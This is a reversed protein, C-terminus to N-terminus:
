PNSVLDTSNTAPSTTGTPASVPAARFQLPPQALVLCGSTSAKRTGRSATSSHHCIMTLTTRTLRTVPAPTSGPPRVRQVGLQVPAACFRCPLQTLVRPADAV